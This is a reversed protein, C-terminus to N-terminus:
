PLSMGVWYVSCSNWLCVAGLRFVEKDSKVKCCGAAQICLSLHKFLQVSSYEQAGSCALPWSSHFHYAM